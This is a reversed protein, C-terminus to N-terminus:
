NKFFGILTDTVEKHRGLYRDYCWSELNDALLNLDYIDSKKFFEKRHSFSSNRYYYSQNDVILYNGMSDLDANQMNQTNKKAITDFQYGTLPKQNTNMYVYLLMFGKKIKGFYHLRAEDIKDIKYQFLEGDFINKIVEYIKFKVSSTAGMWYVYKVINKSQIILSQSQETPLTFNTGDLAGYHFLYVYTALKPYNNSYENIIQFWKVLEMEDNGIYDSKVLRYYYELCYTIKEIDNLIKESDQKKLAKNYKNGSAFFQRLGIESDTDSNIGRIAHMYIRFVDDVKYSIADVREVINNWRIIFDDQKSINASAMYIQAKFIDADSLDLGRNNITEFITLANDRASDQQLDDSQIPLLFVFDLVFDAFANAKNNFKKEIEGCFFDLSSHFRSRKKDIENFSGIKLCELLYTNDKDEFVASQLRQEKNDSRRDRIWMINELSNNEKDFLSLAKILLTLTILRQQGDVVEFYDTEPSKALVINGLFYGDQYSGSEYFSFLDEWLESCNAIDWSYPRQYNPILYKMGTGFIREISKQEASLKLAM